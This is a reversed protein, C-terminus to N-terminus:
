DRWDTVLQGLTERLEVLWPEYNKWRGIGDRNLPQRVQESSPTLIARDTEFFRLCAPDFPLGLYDVLRRVEPEFNDVLDEYILRHVRGPRVTDVHRMMRWYDRYYYALDSQSYSFSGGFMFHQMYNALCCDLPNRRVDIIKANPLMSLILGVQRWNTPNKDTFRPQDTRRHVRALQIYRRGLAEMEDVTLGEIARQGREPYLQALEGGLQPIVFLEETAEISPHSSLIQEVLTSGSRPMGLIFIPAESDHGWGSRQGFYAPTFVDIAADVSKKVGEASHPLSERRLANGKLLHGAARAFDRRDDWAKSLAFHIELAASPALSPSVIAAEMQQLDFSFFHARKMNALGWWAAGCAMDIAFATRYAAVADGFRGVTKLLFGLNTWAYASVPYAALVEQLSAEGEGLRRVQVLIAAKFSLSLEHAPDLRLAEDFAAIAEDVQNPQDGSLAVHFSAKGLAAWTETSSPNIELARRLVKEADAPFGCQMAIHALLELASVDNPQQRLYRRLEIEAREDQGIALLRLSERVPPALQLSPTQRAPVTRVFERVVENLLKAAAEDEPQAAVLARALDSARKLDTRALEEVSAISLEATAM